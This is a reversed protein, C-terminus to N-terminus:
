GTGGARVRPRHATRDHDRAAGAGHKGGLEEDHGGQAQELATTLATGSPVAHPNAPVFDMLELAVKDPLMYVYSSVSGGHGPVHLYRYGRPMKLRYRGGPGTIDEWGLQQAGAPGPAAALGSGAAAAVGTMMFRRRHM